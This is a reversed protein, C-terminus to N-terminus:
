SAIYARLHETEAQTEAMKSKVLDGISIIGVLRRDHCVPLHRVRRDTMLALIEDVTDSPKALLVDRMMFDALPRGLDAGGGQAVAQLVDRESIIGVVDGAPDTVVLSGVGRAWLKAAATEISEGPSATFVKDGKAHLVQSVLM